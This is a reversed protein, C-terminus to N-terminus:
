QLGFFRELRNCHLIHNIGGENLCDAYNGETHCLRVFSYEFRRMRKLVESCDGYLHKVKLGPGIGDPMVRRQASSRLYTGLVQPELLYVGFVCVCLCDCVPVGYLHQISFITEFIKLIQNQQNLPEDLSKM